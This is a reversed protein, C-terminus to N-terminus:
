VSRATTAARAPLASGATDSALSVGSAALGASRAQQIANNMLVVSSLEEAAAMSAPTHPFADSTKHLEEIHLQEPNTSM